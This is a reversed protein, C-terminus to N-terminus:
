VNIHKLAEAADLWKDKGKDSFYGDWIWYRGYIAREKDEAEKEKQADNKEIGTGGDKIHDMQM